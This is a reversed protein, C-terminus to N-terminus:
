RQTINAYIMQGSSCLSHKDRKEWRPLLQSTENYGRGLIACGDTTRMFHGGRGTEALCLRDVGGKKQKVFAPPSINGHRMDWSQAAM